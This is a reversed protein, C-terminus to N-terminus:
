DDGFIITSTSTESYLAINTLLSSKWSKIMHDMCTNFLTSKVGENTIIDFYISLDRTVCLCTDVVLLVASSCVKLIDFELFIYVGISQSFSSSCALLM